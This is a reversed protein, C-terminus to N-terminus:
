EGVGDMISSNIPLETFLIYRNRGDWKARYLAQDATAILTQLPIDQQPVIASIGLSLTVRDSTTSHAHSLGRNHMSTQIREALVQAGQIDTGPLLLVFEEGGYRALLDTPRRIVSKLVEAVQQLCRDGELHGYFDNYAKFEDVDALILALSQQSVGLLQWQEHLYEDFRRRNAIQTLGDLSALQRLKRNIQALEATRQAVKVELQYSYQQLAQKMQELSAFAQALEHRQAEITSIDRYSRLAAIVTALLKQRTLEVKLKYDNIDYNLIVSEEPAEGPHGTRLVIRIKQNHLHERIYQVIQLGSNETEMVVDLLVFATDPHHEALLEMGEEGSYASVFTLPKGEFTFNKLALLTAQHVAPEDDVIVVKWPSPPYAESTTQEFDLPDEDQFLLDDDNGELDLLPDTQDLDFPSADAHDRYAQPPHSYVM